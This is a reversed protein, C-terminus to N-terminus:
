FGCFSQSPRGHSGGRQRPCNRRLRLTNGLGRQVRQHGAYHTVRFLGSATPTSPTPPRAPRRRHNRGFAIKRGDSSWVPTSALRVHTPDALLGGCPGAIPLQRLGTGDFHVVWISSHSIRSRRARESRPGLLRDRKGQPSWSGSCFNFDMGDPTIQKCAAAMWSSRTSRTPRDRQRAHDRLRKGNPSYDGPRTTATRSGLDGAAPRRRRVVAGHLRREPESGDRRARAPLRSRRGTVVGHLLAGPRIATSRDPGLYVSSGDDLTSCSCSAPARASHRARDEHRRAVM